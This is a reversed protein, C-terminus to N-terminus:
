DRLDPVRSWRNTFYVTLEEGPWALELTEEFPFPDSMEVTLRSRMGTGPLDMWAWGVLASLDGVTDNM